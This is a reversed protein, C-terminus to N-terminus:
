CSLSSKCQAPFRYSQVSLVSVFSQCNLDRCTNLLCVTRMSKQVAVRYLRAEKFVVKSNLHSAEDEEKYVKPNRM